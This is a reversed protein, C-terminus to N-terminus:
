IKCKPVLYLCVKFDDGKLDIFMRLGLDLCEKVVDEFLPIREGRYKYRDCFLCSTIKVSVIEYCKICLQCCTLFLVFHFYRMPHKESIDLQKLEEWTMNNIRGTAGTMRDVTDDHFVIPIHDKTLVVDFEVATM